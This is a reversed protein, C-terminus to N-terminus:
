SADGEPDLIKAKAAAFEDDTLAGTARLQALDELDALVDRRPAPTSPELRRTDLYAQHSEQNHLEQQPRSRPLAYPM